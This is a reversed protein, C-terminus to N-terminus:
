SRRPAPVPASGASEDHKFLDVSELLNKATDLDRYPPVDFIGSYGPIAKKTTMSHHHGWHPAKATTNIGYITSAASAVGADHGGNWSHFIIEREWMEGDSEDDMTYDGYHHMTTVDIVRRLAAPAPPLKEDMSSDEAESKKATELSTSSPASAVGADHGENWSSRFVVDQEWVDDSEDNRNYSGYHHMTTDDEIIRLAALAAAPLKEDMSSSKETGSKITSDLSSPPLHEM